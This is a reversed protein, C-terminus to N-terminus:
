KLDSSSFVRQVMAKSMFIPPPLASWVGVLPMWQCMFRACSIVYMAVSVWCWTIGHTLIRLLIVPSAVTNERRFCRFAYLVQFVALSM